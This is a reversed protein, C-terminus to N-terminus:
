SWGLWAYALRSKLGIPRIWGVNSTLVICPEGPLVMLEHSVSADASQVDGREFEWGRTRDELGGALVIDMELGEHTHPPVGRGPRVRTIRLITSSGPLEFAHVDVGPYPTRWPLSALPGVAAVLPRPFVPDDVLAPRRADHATPNADQLTGDHDPATSELAAQVTAQVFADLDPLEIKPAPLQEVLAGGVAELQELKARCSPCFTLHCAAVLAHGPDAAGAAYEILVEAPVHHNPM